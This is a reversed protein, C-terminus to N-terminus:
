SDVHAEQFLHDKRYNSVRFCAPEAMLLGVTM